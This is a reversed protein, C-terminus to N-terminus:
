VKLWRAEFEERSLAAPKVESTEERAKEQESDGKFEKLEGEREVIASDLLSIRQKMIEETEGSELGSNKIERLFHVARLTGKGRSMDKIWAAAYLFPAAAATAAGACFNFITRVAWTGLYVPFLGVIAGAVAGAPGLLSYGLVGGSVAIPLACAGLLIHFGSEDDYPNYDVINWGLRYLDRGPNMAWARALIIDTVKNVSTQGSGEILCKREETLDGLEHEVRRRLIEREEASSRVEVDRLTENESEIDSPVAPWVGGKEDRDTEPIMKARQVAPGM